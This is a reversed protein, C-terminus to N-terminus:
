SATWETWFIVPLGHEAVAVRSM